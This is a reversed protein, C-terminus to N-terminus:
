IREHRVHVLIVDECGIKKNGEDNDYWRRRARAEEAKGMLIRICKEDKPQM